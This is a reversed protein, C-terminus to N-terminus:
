PSADAPMSQRVAQGPVLSENDTMTYVLILAIMLGVAGWIRWDRHARKWYPGHPRTRDRPKTGENGVNHKSANM